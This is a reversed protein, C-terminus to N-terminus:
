EVDRRASQIIFRAYATNVVDKLTWSLRRSREVRIEDGHVRERMGIENEVAVDRVTGEREVRRGSRESARGRSVEFEAGAM